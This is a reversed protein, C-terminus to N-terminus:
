PWLPGDGRDEPQSCSPDLISSPPLNKFVFLQALRNSTPNRVRRKRRGTRRARGGSASARRETATVRGPCRSERRRPSFISPAAARQSCQRTFDSDADEPHFLWLRRFGGGRVSSPQPCSEACEGPKGQHEFNIGGRKPPRKNEIVAIKRDEIRVDRPIDSPPHCEDARHESEAIPDIVQDVPRIREPEM